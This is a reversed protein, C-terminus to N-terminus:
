MCVLRSIRQDITKLEVTKKKKYRFTKKEDIGMPLFPCKTVWFEIRRLMFTSRYMHTHMYIYICVHHYMCVGAM